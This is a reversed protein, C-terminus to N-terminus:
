ERAKGESQVAVLVEKVYRQNLMRQRGAIDIQQSDERWADINALVVLCTATLALILVTPLIALKAVLPINNMSHFFARCVGIALPRM